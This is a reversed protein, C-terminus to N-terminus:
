IDFVCCYKTALCCSYTVNKSHVVRQGKKTIEIHEHESYLCVRLLVCGINPVKTDVKWEKSNLAICLYMKIANERGLNRKLGIYECMFVRKGSQRSCYCRIHKKEKRQETKHLSHKCEWCVYHHLWEKVCKWAHQIIKHSCKSRFAAIHKVIKM